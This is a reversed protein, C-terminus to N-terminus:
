SLAALQKSVTTFSGVVLIADQAQDAAATAAALASDLDPFCGAAPRALVGSVRAALETVPLARADDSQALFWQAVYPVLPAVIAEPEKDALVALVAYLRGGCHFDRLNNALAAAAAGNHAVDLIWTPTGPFVQFRGPLQARQLGLRIANLPIPLRERLSTLAAVAAAANDRQFLGRLTPVPLSLRDGNSCRWCWNNDAPLHDFERGLQQVVAGLREATERLGAPANRQGIIAPRGARFIGAKELAIEDLSEGLWATHDRGISTVVAVDADIVNVADLRGGLGVELIALDPATTAALVLAALTGFEFYTLPIDGRAHDIQAFAACLAADSVAAGDRRIRENYHLLHPSTYSLTRYGAAQAIAELMAVCSGKGNTGGVVIVPFPLPLPHLRTWVAAVRTLGLAIASPFLTTQWELWAALTDFRPVHESSFLQYSVVSM